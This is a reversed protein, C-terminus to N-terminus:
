NLQQKHLYALAEGAKEFGQKEMEKIITQLMKLEQEADTFPRCRCDVTESIAMRVTENALMENIGLDAMNPMLPRVEKFLDDYSFVGTKKDIVKCILQTLEKICAEVAAPNTRYIPEFQQNFEERTM